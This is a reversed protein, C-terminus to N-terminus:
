EELPPIEVYKKMLRAPKCLSEMNNAARGCKRCVWIPDKVLEKYERLHKKLFDKKVLKCLTRKRARELKKENIPTSEMDKIEAEQSPEMPLDTSTEQEVKTTDDKLEDM